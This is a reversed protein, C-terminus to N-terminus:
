NISNHDIEMIRPSYLINYKWDTLGANSFTIGKWNITGCASHVHGFLHMKPKIKTVKDLLVSSGYHLNDDISDLIGLPPRHTILVDISDPIQEYQELEKLDEGEFTVFMPAGYFSIGNITIGSDCLYHVDDPLGELTADLMCDDHNGAIFIKHKYPLDCLWEIFDLAEMDGGALTFDGSHVLVDALPMTTIERHKGHTDSLHLIKM